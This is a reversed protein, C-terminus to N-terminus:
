AATDMLAKHVFFEGLLVEGNLILKWYYRGPPMEPLFLTFSSQKPPIRDELLTQYRNNQVVVKFGQKPAAELKFDLLGRSCDRGNKPHLVKTNDNRSAQALVLQYNPLPAFMKKLEELSYQLQEKLQQVINNKTDPANVLEQEVTNLEALIAEDGVQEISRMFIEQLKLARRFDANTARLDDFIQQEEVNLSGILHKEILTTHEM